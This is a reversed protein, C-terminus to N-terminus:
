YPWLLTRKSLGGRVRLMACSSQRRQAVWAAWGRSWVKVARLGCTQWRWRCATPGVAAEEAACRARHSKCPRGRSWGTLVGCVRVEEDSRVTCGVCARMGGGVGGWGWFGRVPAHVTVWRSVGEETDYIVGAALQLSCVRSPHPFRRSCATQSRPERGTHRSQREPLPGVM